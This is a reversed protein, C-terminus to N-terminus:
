EDIEVNLFDVMQGYIWTIKDKADRSDTAHVYDWKHEWNGTLDNVAELEVEYVPLTKDGFIVM